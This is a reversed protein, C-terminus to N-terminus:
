FMGSFMGSGHPYNNNDHETDMEDNPCPMETPNSRKGRKKLYKLVTRLRETKGGTSQRLRDAFTVPDIM